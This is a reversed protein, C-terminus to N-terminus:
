FLLCEGLTHKGHPGRDGTKPSHGWLSRRGQGLTSGDFVTKKKELRRQFEAQGEESGGERRKGQTYTDRSTQFSVGASQFM